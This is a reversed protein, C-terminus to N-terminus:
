VCVDFNTLQQAGTDTFRCKSNVYPATEYDYCLDTWMSVNETAQETVENLPQLPCCLYLIPPYITNPPLSPQLRDLLSVQKRARKM